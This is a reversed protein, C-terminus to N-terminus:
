DTMKSKENLSYYGYDGARRWEMRPPYGPFILQDREEVYKGKSRTRGSIPKPPFGDKSSEEKEEETTPEM